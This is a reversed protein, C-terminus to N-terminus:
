HDWDQDDHWRHNKGDWWQHYHNWCDKRQAVLDARRDQAEHSHEGHKAIADDLRAEAKEISHQCKARDDAHSRPAALFTFLAVVAFMALVSRATKMFDRNQQM